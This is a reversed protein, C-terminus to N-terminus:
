RYSIFINFVNVLFLPCICCLANIEETALFGETALERCGSQCHACTKAGIVNLGGIPKTVTDECVM